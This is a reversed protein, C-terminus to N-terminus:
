DSSVILGLVAMKDLVEIVGRYMLRREEMQAPGTLPALSQNRSVVKYAMSAIWLCCETSVPYTQVTTPSVLRVSGMHYAFRHRFQDSLGLLLLLLYEGM